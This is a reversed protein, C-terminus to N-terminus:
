WIEKEAEKYKDEINKVVEDISNIRENWIEYDQKVNKTYPSYENYISECHKIITTKAINLINLEDEKKENIERFYREAGQIYERVDKAKNAQEDYRERWSVLWRRDEELAERAEDIRKRREILENRQEDTRSSSSTYDVVGGPGEYWNYVSATVNDVQEMYKSGREKLISFHFAVIDIQKEDFELAKVYNKMYNTLAQTVESYTNAHAEYSELFSNIHPKEENYFKEYFAKADLLKPSNEYLSPLIKNENIISNKNRELINYSNAISNSSQEQQQIARIVFDDRSTSRSRRNGSGTNERTEPRGRNDM